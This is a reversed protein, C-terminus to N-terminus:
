IDNISLPRLGVTTRYFNVIVLGEEIIKPSRSACVHEDQTAPVICIFGLRKLDNAVDLIEGKENRPRGKPINDLSTHGLHQRKGEGCWYRDVWMKNLIFGAFFRQRENMAALNKPPM